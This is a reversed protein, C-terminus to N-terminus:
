HSKLLCSIILSVAFSRLLPVLVSISNIEIEISEGPSPFRAFSPCIVACGLTSLQLLSLVFTDNVFGRGLRQGSDELRWLRDCRSELSACPSVAGREPLM